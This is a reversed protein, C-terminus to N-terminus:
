GGLYKIANSLFETSDELLGIARNCNGCLLGRIEGSTHCHDVCLHEGRHPIFRKCIGCTGGQAKFMEDYQEQSIGYAKKLKARRNVEPRSRTNVCTKCQSAKKGERRNHFEDLPKLEHCKTCEKM